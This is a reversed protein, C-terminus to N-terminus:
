LFLLSLIIHWWLCLIMLSISITKQIFCLLFKPMPFYSLAFSFNLLPTWFCTQAPLLLLFWHIQIWTLDGLRLFLFFILFFHVPELLIYIYVLMSMVPIRSSFRSLPHCFVYQFFYHGFANGRQHFGNFHMWSTWHVQFLISEFLDVGLCM